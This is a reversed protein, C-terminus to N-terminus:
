GGNANVPNAKSKHWAINRSKIWSVTGPSLAKAPDINEIHRPPWVGFKDKYKVASWGPKYNHELAYGKLEAFFVRKENDTWDYGKKSIVKRLQGPVIEVLEGDQEVIASIIKNEHGCNPCKRMNAPKLYACAECEKPLPVKKKQPKNKQQKGDDLHEHVIDTVLGLRSTTDSHDLILAEEKGHATRLARGIIQVLLMESKTPRALILCRVDWDVGTTLTQINSVVRYEGNHFKRKIERREDPSTEADQYGCSV